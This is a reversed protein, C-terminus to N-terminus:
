KCTSDTTADNYEGTIIQTYKDTDRLSFLQKLLLMEVRTWMKDEQDTPVRDTISVTLVKYRTRGKIFWVTVEFTKYLRVSACTITKHAKLFSDKNFGKITRVSDIYKNFCEIIDEVRM